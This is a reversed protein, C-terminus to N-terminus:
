VPGRKGQVEMNQSIWVTAANAVSLIDAVQVSDVGPVNENSQTPRSM